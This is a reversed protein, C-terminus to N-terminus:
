RIVPKPSNPTEALGLEENLYRKLHKWVMDYGDPWPKGDVCISWRNNDKTVAAVKSGDPSFVQETVLDAFTVDWAKGDVAVTSKGFDPCVVAAIRKADPSFVIKWAQMFRSDWIPGGGEYLTFGDPMKVPAVLSDTGPRFRPEWVHAFLMTPAVAWDHRYVYMQFDNVATLSIGKPVFHEWIFKYGYHM